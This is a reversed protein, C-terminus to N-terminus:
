PEEREEGGDVRLAQISESYRRYGRVEERVEPAPWDHEIRHIATGLNGHEAMVARVHAHIFDTTVHELASLRSLAPERVGYGKLTRYNLYYSDSNRRDQEEEEITHKGIVVTSSSSPSRFKESEGPMLPLQVADAIQWGQQVRVVMGYTELLRLAATVPKDTYGTVTALWEAMVRTRTWYLALLVALPAGKLQRLLRIPDDYRQSM